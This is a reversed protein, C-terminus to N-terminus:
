PNVRIRHHQGSKMIMKDSYIIHYEQRRLVANFIIIIKVLYITSNGVNDANKRFFSNLEVDNLFTDKNLM